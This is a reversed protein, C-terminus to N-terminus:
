PETDERDALAEDGFSEIVEILGRIHVNFDELEGAPVWLEECIAGGVRQVPYRELFDADVEFRTVFGAGSAKVNRDRAIKTAYDQHLM